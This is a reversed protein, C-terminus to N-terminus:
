PQIGSSFKELIEGIEDVFNRIGNVDSYYNQYAKELRILIIEKDQSDCLLKAKRKAQREAATAPKNKM